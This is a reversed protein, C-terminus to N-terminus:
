KFNLTTLATSLVIKKIRDDVNYENSRIEWFRKVISMRIEGECFDILDYVATMILNQEQAKM